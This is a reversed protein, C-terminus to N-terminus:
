YCLNKWEYAKILSNYVQQLSCHSTGIPAVKPTDIPKITPTVIPCTQPPCIPVIVLPDNCIAKVVGNVCICDCSASSPIMEKSSNTMPKVSKIANYRTPPSHSKSQLNDSYNSLVNNATNLNSDDGLTDAALTVLAAVKIFNFLSNMGENHDKTLERWRERGAKPDHNEFMIDISNSHKLDLNIDDPNQIVPPLKIGQSALINIAQPHGLSSAKILWDISNGYRTDTEDRILAALNIMSSSYGNTASCLYFEKAIRLQTWNQTERPSFSAKFICDKNNENSVAWIPTGFSEIKFSHTPFLGYQALKAYSYYLYKKGKKSTIGERAGTSSFVATDYSAYNFFTEFNQSSTPM